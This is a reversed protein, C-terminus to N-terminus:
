EIMARLRDAEDANVKGDRLLRLANRVPGLPNRLEHSLMALFEDKNLAEQRLAMEVKKRETVDRNTELVLALKDETHILTYHGEVTLQRGDRTTHLQEGSWRGDRELIEALAKLGVSGPRRLWQGSPRVIPRPAACGS